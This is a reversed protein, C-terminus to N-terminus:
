DLHGIPLNDSCLVSSRLLVQQHPNSDLSNECFFLHRERRTGTTTICSSGADGAIRSYDYLILIALNSYKLSIYNFVHMNKNEASFFSPSLFQRDPSVRLVTDSKKDFVKVRSVTRTDSIRFLFM